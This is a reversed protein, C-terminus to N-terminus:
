EPGLRYKWDIRTRVADAADRDSLDEAFQM